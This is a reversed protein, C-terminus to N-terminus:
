FKKLLIVAKNKGVELIGGEIERDIRKEATIIKMKGPKLVSILPVHRPLVAIQGERTPLILEKAEGSFEMGKPTLIEVKM